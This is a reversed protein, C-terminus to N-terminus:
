VAIRVRRAHTIDEGTVPRVQSAPVTVTVVAVTNGDFAMFEVAFAERDAQIHVITEVDGAKLDDEGPLDATLLVLDHEDLM